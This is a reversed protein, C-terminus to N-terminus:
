MSVNVETVDLNTQRSHHLFSSAELPDLLWSFHLAPTRCTVSFKLQKVTCPSLFSEKVCSNHIKGNDVQM